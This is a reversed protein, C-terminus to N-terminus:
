HHDSARLQEIVIRVMMSECQSDMMSAFSEYHSQPKCVVFGELANEFNM